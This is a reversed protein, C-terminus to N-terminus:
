REPRRFYFYGNSETVLIWGDKGLSDLLAEQKKMWDPPPLQNANFNGSPVIKYEWRTVHRVSSCGSLVLVSVGLILLRKIQTKMIM